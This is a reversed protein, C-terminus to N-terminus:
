LADKFFIEGTVSLTVSTTGVETTTAAMSIGRPCIIPRYFDWAISEESGIMITMDPADTGLIVEVAPKFFVQVYVIAADHNHLLYGIFRPKKVSTSIDRVTSNLGEYGTVLANLPQTSYEETALLNEYGM